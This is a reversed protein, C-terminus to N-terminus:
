ITASADGDRTPQFHVVLDLKSKPDMRTTPKDVTFQPDSSELNLIAGLEGTNDITIPKDAQTGTKVAGFDLGESPVAVNPLPVHITQKAFVVAAPAETTDYDKRAGVGVPLNLHMNGLKPLTMDIVPLVELTGKLAIQGEVDAVLDVANANQYK